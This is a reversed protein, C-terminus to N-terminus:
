DLVAAIADLTVRWGEEAREAFDAWEPRLETSLTMESGDERPEVRIRVIDADPSDAPVSWTFALCRPREIELYEGTHLVEGGERKDVFTFTGGVRPDVEVRVTRGRAPQLRAAERMWRWVMAPDLWADLAREPSAHLSRRVTIPIPSESMM